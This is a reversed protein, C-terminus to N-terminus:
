LLTLVSCYLAACWFHSLTFKVSAGTILFCLLFNVGVDPPLCLANPLSSQRAQLSCVGDRLSVSGLVPLEGADRLPHLSRETSGPAVVAPFSLDGLRAAAPALGLCLISVVGEGWCRRCCSTDTVGARPTWCRASVTAGAQSAAAPTKNIALNHHPWRQVASREGFGRKGCWPSLLPWLPGYLLQQHKHLM